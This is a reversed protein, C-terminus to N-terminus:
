FLTPRNEIKAKEINYRTAATMSAFGASYAAFEENYLSQWCFYYWPGICYVAADATAGFQSLSQATAGSDLSELGLAAVYLYVQVSMTGYACGFTQQNDREMFPTPQIPTDTFNTACQTDPSEEAYAINALPFLAWILLLYGVKKKM